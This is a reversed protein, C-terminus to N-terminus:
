WERSTLKFKATADILDRAKSELSKAAAAAAEVLAANQLKVGEMRIIANNVQDIGASQEQTAAAIENVIDTVEKVSAVIEDLTDGAQAVLQGADVVKEVSDEILRKIEKAATASFPALNRVEAAVVAFGRGQEGARAAEVGANLALVSASAFAKSQM